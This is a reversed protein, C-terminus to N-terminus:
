IDGLNKQNKLTIMKWATEVDFNQMWKKDSSCAQGIVNANDERVQSYWTFETLLSTGYQLLIDRQASQHVNASTSFASHDESDNTGTKMIYCWPLSSDGAVGSLM